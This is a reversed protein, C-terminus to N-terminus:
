RLLASQVSSFKTVKIWILLECLVARKTDTNMEVKILIYFMATHGAVQLSGNTRHSSLVQLMLHLADVHRKLGTEFCYLQRSKVLVAMMMKPRSMYVEMALIIQDEGHDCCIKEAPINEFREIDCNFIGLYKLPCSLFSLGAIYSPDFDIGECPHDDDSIDSTLNTGSIDLYELNPLETVLTHLCTVPNSYQGTVRNSQSLDLCRLNKLGSIMPICSELNQVDYLILTTLNPVKELILLHDPFNWESLDLTRLNKLTKFIRFLFEDATEDKINNLLGQQLYLHQINPCFEVFHRLPETLELNTEQASSLKQADYALEDARAIEQDWGNDLDNSEHVERVRFRPIRLLDCSTIKLSDLKLSKVNLDTLMGCVKESTINLPTLRIHSLDLFKLTSQQAALLLALTRYSINLGSLDLRGLPQRAGDLFPRLNEAVSDASASENRMNKCVHKVVVEAVAMPLAVVFNAAPSSSSPDRSCKEYMLQTDDSAVVNASLELLSPAQLPKDEARM